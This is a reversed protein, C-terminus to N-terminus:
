VVCVVAVPVPVVDDDGGVVVVEDPGVVVCVVAVVVPVPVFSLVKVSSSMLQGIPESLWSVDHSAIGNGFQNVSM